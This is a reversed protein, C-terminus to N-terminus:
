ELQTYRRAAERHYNATVHRGILLVSTDKLGFLRLRQLARFHRQLPM